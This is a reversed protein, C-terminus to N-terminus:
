IIKFKQQLKFIVLWLSTSVQAMSWNNLSSNDTCSKM